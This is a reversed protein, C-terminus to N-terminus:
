IEIEQTWDVYLFLNLTPQPIERMEIPCVFLLIYPSTLSIYTHLLGYSENLFNASSPLESNKPNFEEDAHRSLDTKYTEYFTDQEGRNFLMWSKAKVYKPDSLSNQDLTIRTLGGNLLAVTPNSSLRVASSQCDNETM